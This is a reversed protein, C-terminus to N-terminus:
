NPAQDSTTSETRQALRVVLATRDDASADEPVSRILQLALEKPSGGDFQALLDRIWQDSQGGSIGDSVLLVCDGVELQFPTIDPAAHDGDALGAPLASGVVRSVVKGKKIYTPAAGMKYVTGAGTFLDIRLLDITTFGYDEEGRLALASNLTKLASDPEVGAQLFQELLRVALVSEQRAALGSGMGDCLLLYISGDPAKFWTGADGSVPQGDKKQAAIGALAMLPEAQALVLHRPSQKELRLPVGLLTAISTLEEPASLRSSGPGEVEARLHGAEDYYVAADCELGLETLKHRLRKERVPDPMLEQGLELAASSLLSSLQAYQRCVAGRNERIRAAYQRRTLLASLEENVTSLFSSFHLCRSSFYIPFDDAQARGRDIMALSADNLANFTSVYDREWCSSRLSCRRCVREATRDFIVANDGDNSPASHFSARLTDSLSRFAEATRELRQRVYQQAQFTSTRSGQPSLLLGLQRLPRDPLLLFVVSAFFVEYLISLQLGNDWTWLVSVADTLVFALAAFLRTRTHFVGTILGSFAFAMSYFPPGGMALDMALGASVGVAAGIGLGGQYACVLVALAALGRGVSLQGPLYFQCLSILLTVGLVMLGVLQKVTLEGDPEERHLFSRFALRYFYVAAGTLLMETFFFIVDVTRWGAQSLYVFGTAGNLLAATVPMFWIRQYLRIDFFAFAVAFILVAAAVYRLGEVFGLFTFYGWCAGLLASFGCSGSGAAGVLALAFPSASGFIEAGALVAGLLLHIVCEAARVLAPARLVLKGNDALDQKAQKVRGKWLEKTSM